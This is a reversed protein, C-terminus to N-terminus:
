LISLIIIIVCIHVYTLSNLQAHGRNCVHPLSLHDMNSVKCVCELCSRLTCCCVCFCLATYTLYPHIVCVHVTFLDAVGLVAPSFAARLGM